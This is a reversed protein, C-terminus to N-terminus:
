TIEGKEITQTFHLISHFEMHRKRKCEGRKGGANEGVEVESRIGVKIEDNWDKNMKRKIIKPNVLFKIILSFFLNLCPNKKRESKAVRCNAMADFCPNRERAKM